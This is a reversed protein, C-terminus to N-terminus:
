VGVPVEKESEILVRLNARARNLHFKVAGTSIGMTEGIEAVSIDELYFLAVVARQQTPLHSFHSILDIQGVVEESMATTEHNAGAEVRDERRRRRRDSRHSDYSRNIAVRRVWTAPNDTRKVHNWRAYARVFAEQVADNAAESDGTILTVSRVLGEYNARFFENFDTTNTM